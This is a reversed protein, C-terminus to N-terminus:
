WLVCQNFLRHRGTGMRSLNVNSIAVTRVQEKM